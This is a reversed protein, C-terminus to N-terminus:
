QLISLLTIVVFCWNPISVFAAFILCAWMVREKTRLWWCVLLLMGVILQVVGCAMLSRPLGMVPSMLIPGVAAFLLLSGSLLCTNRLPAPATKRLFDPRM